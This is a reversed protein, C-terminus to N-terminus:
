GLIVEGLDQQYGVLYRAVEGLDQQYGVLYRVVGELDQEMPGVM